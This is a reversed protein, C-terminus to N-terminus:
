QSSRQVDSDKEDNLFRTTNETVSPSQVVEATKKIPRTFSEVPAASTQNLQKRVNNGMQTPLGLSDQSEIERRERRDQVFVAYLIRFFGVLFAVVSVVFLVAFDDDVATLFAVFLSYVVSALIIWTGLRAGQMASKKKAKKPQKPSDGGTAVLEMVGSLAFGCRSCFRMEESVQPQSCQPCYM